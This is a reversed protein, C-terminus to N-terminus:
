PSSGYDNMEGHMIYNSMVYDSELDQSPCIGCEDMYLMFGNTFLTAGSTGNHITVARARHQKFNPEYQVHVLIYTLSPPTKM